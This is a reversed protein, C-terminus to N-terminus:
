EVDARVAFAVDNVTGCDRVTTTGSTLSARLNAVARATLMETGAERDALYDALVTMSGSLTLHVHANILGPLLTADGCDVIPVAGLAAGQSTSDELEAWRGVARIRDDGVIVFGDAVPSASVGDWVRAARFITSGPVRL